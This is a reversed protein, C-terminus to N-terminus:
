AGRGGVDWSGWGKGVKLTTILHDAASGSASEPQKSMAKAAALLASTMHKVLVKIIDNVKAVMEVPAIGRVNDILLSYINDVEQDVRDDDWKLIRRPSEWDRAVMFLIPDNAVMNLAQIVFGALEKDSPFVRADTMIM